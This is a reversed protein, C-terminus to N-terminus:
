PQSDLARLTSVATLLPIRIVQSANKGKNANVLGSSPPRPSVTHQGTLVRQRCVSWIPRMKDALAVSDITMVIHIKGMACLIIFSSFRSRTQSHALM